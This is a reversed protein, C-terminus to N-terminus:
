WEIELAAPRSPGSKAGASRGTISRGLRLAWGRGATNAISGCRRGRSRLLGEGSWAGSGRQRVERLAPPPMQERPRGPMGDRARSRTVIFTYGALDSEDGARNSHWTTPVHGEQMEQDLVACHRGCRFFSGCEDLPASPDARQLGLLWGSNRAPALDSLVSSPSSTPQQLPWRKGRLCRGDSGSCIPNKNGWVCTM